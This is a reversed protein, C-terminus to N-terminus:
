VRASRAAKTKSILERFSEPKMAMLHCQGETLMARPDEKPSQGGKDAFVSKTLHQPHKILWDIHVSQKKKLIADCTESAEENWAALEDVEEEFYLELELRRDLERNFYQHLATDAANFQAIFKRLKASPQPLEDKEVYSKELTLADLRDYCQQRRLMIVSEHLRDAVMVLPFRHKLDDFVRQVNKTSPNRTGTTDLHVDTWCRQTQLCTLMDAYTLM